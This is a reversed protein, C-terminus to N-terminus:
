RKVRSDEVDEASRGGRGIRRAEREVLVHHRVETKRRDGGRFHNCREKLLLVVRGTLLRLAAHRVRRRLADLFLGTAAHNTAADIEHFIMLSLREATWKRWM